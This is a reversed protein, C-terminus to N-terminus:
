KVSWVTELQIHKWFNFLSSSWGRKVPAISWNLLFLYILKSLSSITILFPITILRHALSETYDGWPYPSYCNGDTPTFLVGSFITKMKKGNTGRGENGKSRERESERESEGEREKRREKKRERHTDTHIHQLAGWSKEITSWACTLTSM